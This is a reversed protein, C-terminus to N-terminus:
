SVLGNGGCMSFPHPLHQQALGRGYSTLHRTRRSRWGIYILLNHSTHDLLLQPAPVLSSVVLYEVKPIILVAKFGLHMETLRVLWGDKV